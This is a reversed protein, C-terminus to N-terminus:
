VMGLETARAANSFACVVQNDARIIKGKVRTKGRAISFDLCRVVSSPYEM